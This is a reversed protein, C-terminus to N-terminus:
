NNCLLVKRERRINTTGYQPSEMGCYQYATAVGQLLLIVYQGGPIWNYNLVFFVLTRNFYFVDPSYQPDVSWVLISSNINPTYYIRIQCGSRIPRTIAVNAIISLDFLTLNIYDDFDIYLKYSFSFM